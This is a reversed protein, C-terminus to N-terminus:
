EFLEAHTGIGILTIIGDEKEWIILLDSKIHAEWYGQFNGTLKHTRYKKPLSGDKSLLYLANCIAERDSLYKSLLKQFTKTYELIFNSSIECIDEPKTKKM